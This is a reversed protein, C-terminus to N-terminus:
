PLLIARYYRGPGNTDNISAPMQDATLTTLTSWSGPAAPSDKFEIRYSRNAPGWLRLQPAPTMTMELNVIPDSQLVAGGGTLFTGNGFAVTLLTRATRSSRKSWNLGDSSVWIPSEFRQSPKYSNFYGVAVFLGGGFAVDTLYRVEPSNQLMWDLGNTSVMTTGSTVGVFIGNGATLASVYQNKPASTWNTGDTSMAVLDRSVAVFRGNGFTIDTFNLCPYDNTSLEQVLWGSTTPSTLVRGRCGSVGVFVGNGFAVPVNGGDPALEPAANTWSIGDVSSWVTGLDTGALYRGNGFAVSVLSASETNTVTVLNTWTVGDASFALQNGGIGVFSGNLYELDRFFFPLSPTAPNQWNTANSSVLFTGLRVSAVFQGKGFTVGSIDMSDSLSQTWVQLDTSVYVAGPGYSSEPYTWGGAAVWKGSAYTISALPYMYQTPQPRWDWGDDSIWISDEGAYISPAGRVAALMGAGYAISTVPLEPTLLRRTWVRGDPSTLIVCMGQGEGPSKPMTGGGAVFLGEAFIVDFLDWEGSARPTWLVGDPSTLITTADGVAVFQGAAYTIGSLQFFTGAYQPTWTVLDTSTIVTGYDGVATYGGAGYACDRLGDSVGTDRQVWNTGDISTLLTGLEGVAVFTDNIFVVNYLFNGQPLPSRWHWDQLPAVQSHANGLFGVLVLLLASLLRLSHILAKVM